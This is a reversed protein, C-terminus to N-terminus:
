VVGFRYQNIVTSASLTIVVLVDYWGGAAFTNALTPALSVEYLGTTTWTGGSTYAGNGVSTDLSFSNADVRTIVWTGNAATNGGVSAVTTKMGTTLGHAAATIVIPTANTAGTIVGTEKIASSGTGNTMLGSSGYVRYTPTVQPNIPVDSSDKVQVLFKLTADIAVFGIFM